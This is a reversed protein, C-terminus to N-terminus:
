RLKGGLSKPLRKGGLPVSVGQRVEKARGKQRKKKLSRIQSRQMQRGRRLERRGSQHVKKLTEKKNMKSSHSWLIESSNKEPGGGL